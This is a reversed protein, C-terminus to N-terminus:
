LTGGDGATVEYPRIEAAGGSGAEKSAVGITQVLPYGAPDATGPTGKGDNPEDEGPADFLPIEARLTMDIALITLNKADNQISMAPSDPSEIQVPWVTDVGAFRYAAGFRRNDTQDLFLLFQAALSHASPEDTAFIVIQARVDGAVARLGFLREKPDGPIMVMQRDAVQRTYDRGTPVYDKAVAVIIAPLEPPRTPANGLDARLWLALMEEAADIMRAPAFAIAKAPPRSVFSELPKTTPVIATFYRAMFQGLAIKVPELM